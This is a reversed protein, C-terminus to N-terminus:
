NSFERPEVYGEDILFAFLGLYSNRFAVIEEIYGLRVVQVHFAGAASGAGAGRAMDNDFVWVHVILHGLWLVVLVIHQVERKAQRFGAAQSALDM